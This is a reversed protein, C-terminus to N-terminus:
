QMLSFGSIRGNFFNPRAKIVITKGVPYTTVNPEQDLNIQMIGNSGPVMVLLQHNVVGQKSIYSSVGNCLGTIQVGSDSM